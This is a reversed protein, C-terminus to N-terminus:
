IGFLESEVMEVLLHGFFLGGEATRAASRAELAFLYDPPEEGIKEKGQLLAATTCGIQRATALAEELSEDRRAEGFILVVDKPAALARLQRAFFQRSQGDASLGTALTSDHCLSIAPLLPRELNLRHLFHNAILNAIAGLSGNGLLLLKSGRHFAEVVEASFKNLTDANQEFSQELAAAHERIAAIVKEQQM